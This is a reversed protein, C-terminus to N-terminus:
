CGVNPSTPTTPAITRANTDAERGRSDINIRDILLFSETTPDWEPPFLKYLAPRPFANYHTVQGVDIANGIGEPLEIIIEKDLSLVLSVGGPDTFTSVQNGLLEISKGNRFYINLAYQYRM